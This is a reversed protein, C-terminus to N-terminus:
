MGVEIREALFAPLGAALIKAQATAVDYSVRHLQLNGKERDWVVFSARADGDRPQGVSGVNVLYRDENSLQIEGERMLTTKQSTSCAFARHSHGVFCMQFDTQILSTWGDEPDHLYYEWRGPDGPSAHTYRCSGEDKFLSCSRLFDAHGEELVQVTWQIAALAVPNFFGPDELGVAAWDHNGAIVIDSVDCVHQLCANPDAGYGIVDGLCIIQDVNAEDIKELVIQLAELNGHVDSFIAIRGVKDM